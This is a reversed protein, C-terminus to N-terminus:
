LCLPIWLWADLLHPQQLCISAMPNCIIPEWPDRAQISRCSPIWLWEALLHPCKLFISVMQNCFTPEWDVRLHRAQIPRCSPIWQWDELLHQLCTSAMQNCFIPEWEVRPDWVKGRAGHTGSRMRQIGCHSKMGKQTM